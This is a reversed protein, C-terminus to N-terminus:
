KNFYLTVNEGSTLNVDKEVSLYNKGKVNMFVEFMKTCLKTGNKSYFYFYVKGGNKYPIHDEDFQAKYNQQVNRVKMELKDNEELGNIHYSVFVINNEGETNGITIEFGDGHDYKSVNARKQKSLWKSLVSDITEKEESQFIIENQKVDCIHRPTSEIKVFSDIIVVCIIIYVLLVVWIHPLKYVKKHDLAQNINREYLAKYGFLLFVGCIVALAISLYIMNVNSKM